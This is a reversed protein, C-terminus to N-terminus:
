KYKYFCMRGLYLKIIGLMLGDNWGYWILLEINFEVEKIIMYFVLNDCVFFYM